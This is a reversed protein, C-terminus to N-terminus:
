DSRREVKSSRPEPRRLSLVIAGGVIALVGALTAGAFAIWFGQYWLVFFTLLEAVFAMIIPIAM